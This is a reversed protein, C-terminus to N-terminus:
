RQSLIAFCAEPLRPHPPAPPGPSTVPPNPHKAWDALSADCGDGAPVPKQPECLPSDAPCRLRVHFHDDHGWWPSLRHLWATGGSAGGAFGHCLALKIVPSVFIREVDPDAAALRLLRVQRPGFRSPDVAHFGPTLMSPLDVDERLSAPRPAAGEDFTFWLDVDLGIQHSAHGWPLPGGRPQAMDGVQFRPLGAAHARRGLREIFDVLEGHGYYRRRALRIVEYGEGDAPLAVGGALCGHAFGGIAQAPGPSPRSVLSWANQPLQEAWASSACSLAFAVVTSRFIGPSRM